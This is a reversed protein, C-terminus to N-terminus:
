ANYQIYMTMRKVVESAKSGPLVSLGPQETWTTILTSRNNLCTSEGACLGKGM